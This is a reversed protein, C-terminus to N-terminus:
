SALFRGALRLERLMSSKKRQHMQMRKLIDDLTKVADVVYPGKNLMVCEARESMAADTIEARSPVGTKALNELVQTAWIVPTHSAEAMWLIEEQVEALREYGCEVALDGRAIMVGASDSRMAALLLAPLNEFAQRTEVKLVIGLHHSGITELHMQLERVDSETRVFSYGILDARGDIFELDERDKATLAPLRLRTEPLNIGKDAGLKAGGPKTRTIEVDIAAEDVSRIVGGISGDDFWIPEGPKVDDFMEPLTVGISAPELVSGDRARIAPTGPELGRRLILRDGRSLHLSQPAPPLEGVTTAGRSRGRTVHLTTGPVIYATQESECWVGEDSTEVVTLARMSGRADFLKIVDDARLRALWEHSVPLVAQAPEPPLHTQDYSTLWIRAPASVRGFRDRAPKWRVVPTTPQVPGTRIKPGAVDIVVRCARGTAARADDLHRLMRDWATMDDHAANIRMCDMGSLLLERILQPDDAAEGPMTVMIRVDRGAPPRGLLDTANLELLDRQAASPLASVARDDRHAYEGRLRRVIALVATVTGIAHSEARGLSSLGHLALAQQLMRLDRSRLALYHLLNRASEQRHQPVDSWRGSLHREAALMDLRIATLERQLLELGSDIAVDPEPSRHRV